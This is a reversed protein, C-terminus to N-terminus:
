LVVLFSFRHGMKPPIIGRRDGDNGPDWSDGRRMFHDLSRQSSIWLSRANVV